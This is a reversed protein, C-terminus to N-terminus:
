TFIQIYSCERYKEFGASLDNAFGLKAVAGQELFDAASIQYSRCRM